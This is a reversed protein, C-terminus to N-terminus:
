NVYLYACMDHNVTDECFIHLDPSRNQKFNHKFCHCVHVARKYVIVIYIHVLTYAIQM